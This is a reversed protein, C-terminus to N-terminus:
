KIVDYTLNECCNKSEPTSLTLFVYKIIFDDTLFCKDSTSLDEAVGQCREQFYSVKVVLKKRTKLRKISNSRLLVQLDQTKHTMSM